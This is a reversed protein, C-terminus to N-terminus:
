YSLLFRLLGSQCHMYIYPQVCMTLTQKNIIVYNRINLHNHSCQPKLYWLCININFCDLHLNIGRSNWQHFRMVSLISTAKNGTYNTNIYLTIKYLSQSQKVTSTEIYIVDCESLCCVHYITIHSCAKSISLNLSVIISFVKNLDCDYNGRNDVSKSRGLKVWLEM